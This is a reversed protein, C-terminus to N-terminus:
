TRPHTKETPVCCKYHTCLVTHTHQAIHTRYQALHLIFQVICSMSKATKAMPMSNSIVNCHRPSAYRKGLTTPSDPRRLSTNGTGGRGEGGRGETQLMRKHPLQIAMDESTHLILIPVMNHLLANLTHVRGSQLEDDACEFSLHTHSLVRMHTHTCM